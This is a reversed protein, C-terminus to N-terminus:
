RYGLGKSYYPLRLWNCCCCSLSLFFISKEPVFNKIERTTAGFDIRGNEVRFAAVPAEVFESELVITIPDDRMVPKPRYARALVVVNLVELSPVDSIEWNHNMLTSSVIQDYQHHTTWACVETAPKFPISLSLVNIAM